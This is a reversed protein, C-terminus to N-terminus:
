LPSAGLAARLQEDTMSAVPTSAGAASRAMTNARGATDAREVDARAPRTGAQAAATARAAIQAAFRTDGRVELVDQLVREGREGFRRVLQDSYGRFGDTDNARALRDLDAAYVVLSANPLAKRNGETVGAREQAMLNADVFAQAAPTSQPNARWRESASRVAFDTVVSGAPDQRQATRRGQYADWTAGARGANMAALVKRPYEASRPNGRSEVGELWAERSIAGSRPDGVSGLWGDVNGEGAHYATIALFTDGNYRTLLEGLYAQGIRTNYAGDNRLRSEDYPLGLQGAIRRATAPLVQMRGFAGGGAPGAGDPDASVLGDRNGSEVQAIAASVTALDGEDQIVPLGQDFGRAATAQSIQAAAADPDDLPLAGVLGHFERADARRKYWASVASNGGAARVQDVTLGTGDGTLEVGAVDEDVLRQLEQERENRESSAQQRRQNTLNLEQGVAERGANFILQRDEISGLAEDTLIGQLRALAADPGETRLGEVAWAAVAGAKIRGILEERKADVEEPSMGYAANGELNEFGLTIQMINAEVQPDAMVDALSSGPRINLTDDALKDIRAILGSKAEELDAAARANRIVGLHGGARRDFDAAWEMALAGPVPGGEGMAASRYEAVRTEYGAPDLLSEARFRDLDADADNALKALTGRELAANYAQDFGTITARQQFQGAMVDQEAVAKAERQLAPEMAEVVKGLGQAARNFGDAAAQEGMGYAGTDVVTTAVDGRRGPLGTGAAAM